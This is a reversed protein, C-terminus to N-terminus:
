GLVEPNLLNAPRGGRLGTVLNRVAVACMESRTRVSGSAIHPSLVVNHPGLLGPHVAPEREFVDLGAGFIQGRQLAEALAAEDVVPGRSTNVLVAAPKMIALERPGILHHTEQSLPVHVSVFDAERLLTPLEARTVEIEREVEEPLPHPDSYLVRM